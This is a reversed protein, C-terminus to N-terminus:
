GPASWRGTPAGPGDIQGLIQCAARRHHEVLHAGFLEKDGSCLSLAEGIPHGIGLVQGPTLSEVVSLSINAPRYRLTLPIPIRSAAEEAAAYAAQSPMTSESLKALLPRVTDLPFCVTIKGPETRAGTVTTIETATLCAGRRSAAIPGGSNAVQTVPGSGVGGFLRGTADAIAGAVVELAPALLHREIDSLPRSPYPGTGTGSLRLDLLTMCLAAPLFVFVQGGAVPLVGLLGPSTAQSEFTEWDVQDISAVNLAMRARAWTGLRHAALHSLGEAVQRVAGLTIRDVGESDRFDWPKVNVQAGTTTTTPKPARRSSASSRKAPSPEPTDTAARAM